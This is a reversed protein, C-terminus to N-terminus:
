VRIKKKTSNSKKIILFNSKKDNSSKPNKLNDRSLKYASNALDRKLNRLDEVVRKDRQFRVKFWKWFNKPKM